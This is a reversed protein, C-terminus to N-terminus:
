EISSTNLKVGGYLSIVGDNYEKDGIIKALNYTRIFEDIGLGKDIYMEAIEDISIGDLILKDATAKGIKPIGSYGDATDGMLLQRKFNAEAQQPTVVRVKDHYPDYLKVEFTCLDKDLSVVMSGEKREYLIRCTDDAELHPIYAVNFNDMVMKKVIDLMIPKKTARRNSKYNSDITYRFNKGYGGTVLVYDSTNTKGMLNSITDTIFNKAKRIDYGEYYINEDIQILESCMCAAKYLYSDVDIIVKSQNGM